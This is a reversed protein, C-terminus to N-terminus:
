PQRHARLDHAALLDAVRSPQLSAVRDYAAIANKVERIEARGGLVRKGDFV